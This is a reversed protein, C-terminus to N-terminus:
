RKIPNIASLSQSTLEDRKRQKFEISIINNIIAPKMSKFM